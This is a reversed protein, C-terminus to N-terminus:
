VPLSCLNFDHLQNRSTGLQEIHLVVHVSHLYLKTSLIYKFLHPHIAKFFEDVGVSVRGPTRVVEGLIKEAKTAGEQAGIAGRIEPMTADLPSGRLFGEKAFFASELVGDM